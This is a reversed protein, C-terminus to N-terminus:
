VLLCICNMPLTFLHPYVIRSYNRLLSIVATAQPSASDTDGYSWLTNITEAGDASHGRSTSGFGSTFDDALNCPLLYRPRARRHIKFVTDSSTRSCKWPTKGFLLRTHPASPVRHTERRTVDNILVHTVTTTFSAAKISMDTVFAKGLVSRCCQKTNMFIIYWVDMLGGHSMCEYDEHGFSARICTNKINTVWNWPVEYLEAPIFSLIRRYILSVAMGAAEQKNQLVEHEQQFTCTHRAEVRLVLTAEWTRQFLNQLHELTCFLFM